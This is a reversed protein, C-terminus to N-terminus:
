KFYIYDLEGNVRTAMIGNDIDVAKVYTYELSFSQSYVSAYITMDYLTFACLINLKKCCVILSFSNSPHKLKYFSNSAPHKLEEFSNSSPPFYDTVARYVLYNSTIYTTYFGDKFYYDMYKTTNRDIWNHNNSVVINSSDSSSDIDYSTEFINDLSTIKYIADIEKIYILYKSYPVPTWIIGDNSITIRSYQLSYKNGMETLQGIPQTSLVKKTFDLTTWYLGDPSKYAKGTDINLLLFEKKKSNWCIANELPNYSYSPSILITTINNLPELNLLHNRLNTSIIMSNLKYTILIDMDPSHAVIGREAIQKIFPTLKKKVISQKIIKPISNTENHYIGFILLVAIAIFALMIGYFHLLIM